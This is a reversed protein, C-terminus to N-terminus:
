SNISIIKMFFEPFFLYIWAGLAMFPCFPIRIYRHAGFFFLYLLGVISGLCAGVLLSAWWGIIGLFAGICALLEVDGMGLGEVRAYWYFVRRLLYLFSYASVAGGISEGLSIPLLNFFSLGWALPVLYISMFRSVAYEQLDTRVTVILASSLVAYSLWFLPTIFIVIGAFIILTLGEILPYLYSISCNCTRCHGRLFVWSVLPILDYWALVTLCDPCRSRRYTFLSEGCLLDCAVM